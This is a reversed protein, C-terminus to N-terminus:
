APRIRASSSARGLLYRRVRTRGARPKGVIEIELQLDEVTDSCISVLQTAQGVQTPTLLVGEPGRQLVNLTVEADELDAVVTILEGSAQDAAALLIELPIKSPDQLFEVLLWPTTTSLECARALTAEGTVEIFVGLEVGDPVAFDVPLGDKVLIIQM